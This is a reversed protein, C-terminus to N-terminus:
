CAHLRVSRRGALPPHGPDCAKGQPCARSHLVESESTVLPGEFQGPRALRDEDSPVIPQRVGRHDVISKDTSRGRRPPHGRKYAGAAVTGKEGRDKLAKVHFRDASRAAAASGLPQEFEGPAGPPTKVQGDGRISGATRSILRLGADDNDGLKGSKGHNGDRDVGAPPQVRSAPISKLHGKGEPGDFHM